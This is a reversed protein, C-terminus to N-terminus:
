NGGDDSAAKAKSILPVLIILLVGIILAAIIITMKLNKCKMHRKLDTSKKKFVSAQENLQNAQDSISETKEMNQLMNAINDQMQVKVGEVKGILASAKDVSNVDSYKQCFKSLIPKSPKNLTNPAASKTQPGLKKIYEAYTETLMQTAVRSPYRLGTVVALCIGDSDGGYVVQHADSQVVKFGGIAGVEVGAGPPDNKIVMTVADGYNGRGAYLAGESAAGAHVEYDSAFDYKALMAVGPNGGLSADIRYVLTCRIKSDTM